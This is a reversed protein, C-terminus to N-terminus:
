EAGTPPLKQEIRLLAYGKPLEKEIHHLRGSEELTVRCLPNALVRTGIKLNAERLATADYVSTHECRALKCQELDLLLETFRVFRESRDAFEREICVVYEQPRLSDPLQAMALMTKDSRHIPINFLTFAFVCLVSIAVIGRQLWATQLRSILPTLPYGALLGVGLMPFLAYRSRCDVLLMIPILPLSWLILFLQVDDIHKISRIKLSRVAARGLEFLGVWSLPAWSVAIAFLWDLLNLGFEDNARIPNIWQNDIATSLYEKSLVMMGCIGLALLAFIVLAFRQKLWTTTVDFNRILGFVTLPFLFLLLFPTKSQLLLAVGFFLAIRPFCRTSNSSREQPLAYFLCLLAGLLSIGEVNLDLIDRMFVRTCVFLIVLCLAVTDAFLKKAIFGFLILSTFVFIAAPLKAWFTSYGFMKFTLALIWFLLHPKNAYQESHQYGDYLNIWDGRLLISKAIHAYRIADVALHGQDLHSFCVSAAFLILLFEFRKM